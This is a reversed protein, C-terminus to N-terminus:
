PMKRLLFIGSKQKNQTKNDQVPIYEYDDLEGKIRAVSLIVLM